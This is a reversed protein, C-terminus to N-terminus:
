RTLLGRLSRYGRGLEDVLHRIGAEIEDIPAEVQKAVQQVQVEAEHFRAELREWLDKAEAQGLHLQVRLEDRVRALAEFEAEVDSGTDGLAARVLDSECLLGVLKGDDDVVPLCGFKRRLMRRAADEVPDTPHATEVDRTMVEDVDLTRIFDRRYAEDFGFSTSLSAALLDRSSVVGVLRDGNLVPLHRIRGLRMIDDALDLHDGEHVTVVERQMVESVPRDLERSM